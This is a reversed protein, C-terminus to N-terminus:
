GITTHQHYTSQQIQCVPILLSLFCSELSNSIFSRPAALCINPILMALFKQQLLKLKESRPTRVSIKIKSFNKNELIKLVTGLPDESLSTM